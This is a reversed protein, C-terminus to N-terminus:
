SNYYWYRFVPYRIHLRQPLTMQRGAFLDCGVPQSGVHLTTHQAGARGARPQPTLRKEMDQEDTEDTETTKLWPSNKHREKGQSINRFPALKIKSLDGMERERNEHDSTITRWTPSIECATTRTLKMDAQSLCSDDPLSVEVSSIGQCIPATCEGSPHNIPPPHTYNVTTAGSRSQHGPRQLFSQALWYAARSWPSQM